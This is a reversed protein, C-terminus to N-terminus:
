PLFEAVFFYYRLLAALSADGGPHFDTVIERSATLILYPLLTLEDQHVYESYWIGEM